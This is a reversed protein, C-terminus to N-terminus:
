FLIALLMEDEARQKEEKEKKKAEELARLREEERRKEEEARRKEEERRIREEELRKREAEIRRKREESERKEAERKEKEEPNFYLAESILTPDKSLDARNLAVDCIFSYESDNQNLMKLYRLAYKAALYHETEYILLYRLSEKHNQNKAIQKRFYPLAEEDEYDSSYYIAMGKIWPEYAYGRQEMANLTEFLDEYDWNAVQAYILNNYVYEEHLGLSIAKKADDVAEDTNGLMRNHWSRNGYAYSKQQNHYIATGYWSVCYKYDEKTLNAKKARSFAVRFAGSPSWSSFYDTKEVGETYIADAKVYDEKDYYYDGAYFYYTCSDSKNGKNLYARALWLNEDPTLAKGNQKRWEELQTLERIIEDAHEAANNAKSQIEAILANTEYTHKCRRANLAADLASQLKGERLNKRALDIYGPYKKLLAEQEARKRANEAEIRKREAEARAAQERRYQEERAAQERRREAEYAAQRREREARERRERERMEAEQQEDYMNEAIEAIYEDFDYNYDDIYELYELIIERTIRIGRAAAKGNGYRGKDQGGQFNNRTGRDRNFNADEVVASVDSLYIGVDDAIKQMSNGLVIYRYLIDAAQRITM